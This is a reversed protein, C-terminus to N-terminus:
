SCEQEAAVPSLGLFFTNQSDVVFLSSHHLHLGVLQGPSFTRFGGGMDSGVGLIM